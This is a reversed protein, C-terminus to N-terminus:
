RKRRDDAHGEEADLRDLATVLVQEMTCKHKRAIGNIRELLLSSVVFLAINARAGSREVDDDGRNDKRSEVDARAMTMEM